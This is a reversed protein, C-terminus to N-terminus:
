GTRLSEDVKVAGTVLLQTMLLTSQLRDSKSADFQCFCMLPSRLLELGLDLCILILNSLFLRWTVSVSSMWRSLENTNLM